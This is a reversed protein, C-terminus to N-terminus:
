TFERELLDRAASQRVSVIRRGVYIIVAIDFLGMADLKEALIKDAIRATYDKMKVWTAICNCFIYYKM